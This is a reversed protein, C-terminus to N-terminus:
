LGRRKKGKGGILLLCHGKDKKLLGLMAEVQRPESKEYTLTVENRPKGKLTEVAKFKLFSTQAAGERKLSLIQEADRVLEVPTVNPNIMASAVALLSSAAFFTM